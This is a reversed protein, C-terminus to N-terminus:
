KVRPPLQMDLEVARGGKNASKHIIKKLFKFINVKQRSYQCVLALLLEHMFEDRATNGCVTVSAETVLKICREVAQTHCPYKLIEIEAPIDLIMEELEENSICKTLLPETITTSQRDIMDIYDEAYFNLSPLKFERIEQQNATKRCKLLRRLGLEIVKKRSDALM